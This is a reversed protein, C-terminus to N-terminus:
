CTAGDEGAAARGIGPAIAIPARTRLDMPIGLVAGRRLVRMMRMGAGPAGRYVTDYRRLRQYVYGLRPDYSERAVVSLPVAAALTAAPLIEHLAALELDYEQREWATMDVQITERLAEAAGLLRRERALSDTEDNGAVLNGVGVHVDDGGVVDALEVERLRGHADLAGLEVLRCM